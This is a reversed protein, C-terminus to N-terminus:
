GVEVSLLEELVECQQLRTAHELFPVGADVASVPLQHGIQLLDAIARLEGGEGFGDQLVELHEGAQARHVATREVLSGKVEM